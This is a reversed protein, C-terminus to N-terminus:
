VQTLVLSEGPMLISGRYTYASQDSEHRWQALDELVPQVNKEIFECLGLQTPDMWLRRNENSRILVKPHKPSNELEM